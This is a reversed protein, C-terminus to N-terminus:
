LTSTIIEIFENKAVDYATKQEESMKDIKPLSAFMEKVLGARISGLMIIPSGDFCIWSAIAADLVNDTGYQDIVKEFKKLEKTTYIGKGYYRWWHMLLDKEVAMKLEKGRANALHQMIIYQQRATCVEM